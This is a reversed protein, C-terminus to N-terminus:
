IFKVQEDPVSVIEQSSNSMFFGYKNNTPDIVLAIFYLKNFSNHVFKDHSSLFIGHGPHTHYWGVLLFQSSYREEFEQSVAWWTEPTFCVSNIHNITHKARIIGQVTILYINEQGVKYKGVLIGGVERDCNESAHKQVEKLAQSIVELRIKMM